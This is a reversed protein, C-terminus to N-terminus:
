EWSCVCEDVKDFCAGCECDGQDAEDEPRERLPLPACLLVLGALRNNSWQKVVTAPAEALATGKPARFGYRHYLIRAPTNDCHVHTYVCKAGWQVARDSAGQLMASAAGRRRASQDVAVNDIYVFEVDGPQVCMGNVQSACAGRRTSLDLCGVLGLDPLRAMLCDCHLSQGSPRTTRLKLAKRERQAFERHHTAMFRRSFPLEKRSDLDEYFATARLDAAVEFESSDVATIVEVGKAYVMPADSREGEGVESTGLDEEEVVTAQAFSGKRSHM